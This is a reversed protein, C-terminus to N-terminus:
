GSLCKESDRCFTRNFYRSRRIGTEPKLPPHFLAVVRAFAVQPNDVQVLNKSSTRFNRPVIVAGAGTADVKKLFKPDAAFTIEDGAADEFPAVGCVCQNRDGKLDGNVREAIKALSIEMKFQM